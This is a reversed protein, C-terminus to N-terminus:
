PPHSHSHVSPRNRHAAASPRASLSHCCHACRRLRVVFSCCVILPLSLAALRLRCGNMRDVGRSRRRRGRQVGSTQEIRPLAPQQQRLWQALLCHWVSCSCCLLLPGAGSRGGDWEAAPRTTWRRTASSAAASPASFMPACVLMRIAGARPQATVRARDARSWVVTFTRRGTRGVPSPTTSLQASAWGCGHWDTRISTCHVRIRSAAISHPTCERSPRARLARRCLPDAARGCREARGSVARQEDGRCM